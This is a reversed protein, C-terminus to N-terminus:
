LTDNQLKEKEYEKLFKECNVPENSEEIDTEIAKDYYWIKYNIKDLWKQYENMKEEVIRKQKVFMARRKELTDKGQKCWDIYEKIDKIQMGTNKLCSIIALWEIDSDTFSRQGSDTRGVFPLLGEKDYYRLTHPTLGSMEAAKGISYGM